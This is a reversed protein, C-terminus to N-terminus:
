RWEMIVKALVYFSVACGVLLFIIFVKASWTYRRLKDVNNFSPFSQTM